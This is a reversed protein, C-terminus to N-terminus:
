DNYFQNLINGIELELQKYAKNSLNKFSYSRDKGQVTKVAKKNKNSFKFLLETTKKIEDTDGSVLDFLEKKMLNLMVEKQTDCYVEANNSNSISHLNIVFDEVEVPLSKELKFLFDYDRVSLLSPDYFCSILETSVSAAKIARSVKAESLKRIKAIDKQELNANDMLTLLDIGLERLSHEKATQIQSSLLKAEEKEIEFPAVLLNLGVGKILASARRRSGDLLELQGNANEFAFCPYFQQFEITELIDSLSEKTLLSQDRANTEQKVCTLKEIEDHKISRSQFIIQKKSKPLVLSIANTTSSVGLEDELLSNRSEISLESLNSKFNEILNKNEALFLAKETVDNNEKVHDSKLESAMSKSFFDM